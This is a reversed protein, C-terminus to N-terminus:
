FLCPGISMMWYCVNFLKWMDKSPINGKFKSDRLLSLFARFLIKSVTKPQDKSENSDTNVSVNGLDPDSKTTAVAACNEPKM